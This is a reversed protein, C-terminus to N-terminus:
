TAPLTLSPAVLYALDFSNEFQIYELYFANSTIFQETNLAYFLVITDYLYMSQKQKIVHVSIVTMHFNLSVM